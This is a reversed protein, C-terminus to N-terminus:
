TVLEDLRTSLGAEEMKEKLWQRSETFLPGFARRTWPLETDTYQSLTETLQWLRDTHIKVTPM